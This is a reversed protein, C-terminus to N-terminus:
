WLEMKLAWLKVNEDTESYGSTKGLIVIYMIHGDYAQESGPWNRGGIYSTSTWDRLANSQTEATTETVASGNIRLWPTGGAFNREAQVVVWGVSGLPNSDDTRYYGSGDHSRFVTGWPNHHWMTYEYAAGSIAMSIASLDGDTKHKWMWLSNIYTGDQLQDYADDTPFWAFQSVTSGATNGDVDLYGKGNADENVVAGSSRLISVDNFGYDVTNGDDCVMLFLADEPPNTIWSDVPHQQALCSSSLLAMCMFMRMTMVGMEGM